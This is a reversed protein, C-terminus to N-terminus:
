VVEILSLKINYIEDNIEETELTDDVFRVTYTVSDNPNVWSFTEYRGLRATFFAVISDYIAKTVRDYNLAFTRRPSRYSNRIESGDEMTTIQTAHAIDETYIYSPNITYDAM